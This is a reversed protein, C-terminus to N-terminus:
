HKDPIGVSVVVTSYSPPWWCLYPLTSDLANQSIDVRDGGEGVDPPSLRRTQVLQSIGHLLDVFRNGLVLCYFLLIVFYGRPLSLLPIAERKAAM